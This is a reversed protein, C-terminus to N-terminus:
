GNILEYVARYGQEIAAEVLATGGADSNGIAIRGFKQRGQVHKYRPDDEDDYTETFLNHINHEYAFGHAWRNVTIAKIDDAADFGGPALLETLQMRIDREYVEFPTELFEYRKLRFQEQSTLDQNNFHPYAQLQIIVPDDPTQAYRYDGISSPYFFHARTHLRGPFLAAGIGLKKWARWNSLAVSSYIVPQKVQYSLAEKQAEPLSPCLYPIVSNYCAMVCYKAQVLYTKADNVYTVNVTEASPDGRSHEVNVATSHLRIKVDSEEQDLKSYDFKKTVIDDMTSDLGLKQIVKDFFSRELSPNFEANPDTVPPIMKQVLLRALSSLGDPFHHIFGEYYPDTELGSAPRGLLAAYGFATDASLADIGVGCDSTLDQLIKFVEPETVGLHKELFERYSISKLYDAKDEQAIHPIQDETVTIVRLLQEKAVESIPLAAVADESSLDPPAMKFGTLGFANKITHAKGWDDTSLHLAEKLGNKAFFDLHFADALKEYDVALEGRILNMATYSFGAPDVFAQTGGHALLMRGDVEFENRKAHGGFDDHNDLLLIRAGPNEKKFYFASTLGSIGAGIVVLDYPETEEKLVPGWDSRGERGLQHAVDFAGDHNGRLGSFTPPYYDSNERYTHKACGAISPFLLGAAAISSGNLLDRRTIPRDMGLEKDSYKM